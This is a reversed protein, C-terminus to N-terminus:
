MAKSTCGARVQVWLYKKPRRTLAVADDARSVDVMDAACGPELLAAVGDEFDDIPVQQGYSVRKAAAPDPKPDSPDAAIQNEDDRIRAALM